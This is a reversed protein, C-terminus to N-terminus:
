SNNKRFAPIFLTVYALLSFGVGTWLVVDMHFRLGLYVLFNGLVIIFIMRKIGGAGLVNLVRHGSFITKILMFAWASVVFALGILDSTSPGHEENFSFVPPGKDPYGVTLLGVAIFSCAIWFANTM